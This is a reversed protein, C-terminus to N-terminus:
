WGLGEANSLIQDLRKAIIEKRSEQRRAVMEALKKVKAELAVIEDQQKKQRMDFQKGLTDLLKAKLDARESESKSATLKKALEDAEASLGARAPGRAAYSCM